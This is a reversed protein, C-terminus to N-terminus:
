ICDVGTIISFDFYYGDVNNDWLLIPTGTIPFEAMTIQQVFAEFFNQINSYTSFRSSIITGSNPVVMPSLGVGSVIYIQVNYKVSNENLFETPMPTVYILFDYVQNLTELEIEDTLCHKIYLNKTFGNVLTNTLSTHVFTIFASYTM